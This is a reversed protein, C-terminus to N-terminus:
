QEEQAPVYSMAIRFGVRASAKSGDLACRSGPLTSQWYDAWSGGKVVRINESYGSEPEPAGLMRRPQFADLTWEAANGSMDYLGLPNAPFSGAPATYMYNDLFYDTPATRISATYALGKPTNQPQLWTVYTHKGPTQGLAAYEWEDETPLRFDPQAPLGKEARIANNHASMWACYANAQAWTVGLVPYDDFAPHFFYNEGMPGNHADPFDNTWAASDPLLGQALAVSYLQDWHARRKETDKNAAKIGDEFADRAAGKLLSDRLFARYEANTVEKPSLFFSKVRLTHDPVNYKPEDGVLPGAANRSLFKQDPEILRMRNGEYTFQYGEQSLMDGGPIFVLKTQAKISTIAAFCFVM